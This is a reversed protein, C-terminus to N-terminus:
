RARDERTRAFSGRSQLGAQRGLGRPLAASSYVLVRGPSTECSRAASPSRGQRLTAGLPHRRRRSTSTPRLNRDGPWPQEPFLLPTDREAPPRRAFGCRSHRPMEDLRRRRPGRRRAPVRGSLDLRRADPLFRSQTATRRSQPSPCLWFPHLTTDRAPPLPKCATPANPSRLSSGCGEVTPAPKPGQAM